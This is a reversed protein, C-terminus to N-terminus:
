HEHDHEKLVTHPVDGHSLVQIPCNYNELMEPTLENTNHRHITRNVCVVSKVFSTITGVDHSVMIIAIRENMIKLIEYLEREFKNDVFNAPEDLILLEPESILARCLLTRQLEGGSLEGISKKALRTIGTTAMLEAALSKEAVSYGGARLKHAQLGSLVVETVSIPFSTDFNNIQPLYGISGIGGKLYYKVNGKYPVLGLIAKILSTKGGGNPGIVGLFDDSFIDMSADHVAVQGDYNVSVNELAIIKTM